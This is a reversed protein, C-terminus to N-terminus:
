VFCERRKPGRLPVYGEIAAALNEKPARQMTNRATMLKTSSNTTSSQQGNNADPVENETIEMCDKDWALELEGSDVMNELQSLHLFREPMSHRPAPHFNLQSPQQSLIFNQGKCFPYYDMVDDNSNYEFDSMHQEQLARPILSYHGGTARQFDNVKRMYESDEFPNREHTARVDEDSM